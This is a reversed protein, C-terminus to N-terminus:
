YRNQGEHFTAKAPATGILLKKERPLQEFDRGSHDDRCVVHTASTLKALAKGLSEKRADMGESLTQISLGTGYKDVLLGPLLDSEGHVLRYADRQSLSQRRDLAAKLRAEFFADDVREDQSSKRTLLRLALPSKRAYFAQGIPNGQPDVVDVVAGAVGVEPPELLETRYCWPNGARLSKAGKLSVKAVSRKAM